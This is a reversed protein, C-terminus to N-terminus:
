KIPVPKLLVRRDKVVVEFRVDSCEHKKQFAAANKKVQAVFRDYTVAEGNPDVKKRAAVYEDFIRRYFQEIPEEPHATEKRFAAQAIGKVNIAPHSGTVEVDAFQLLAAWESDDEPLDDDPLPKGQLFCSMVNLAHAMETTFHNKSSVDWTYDRNGAIVQQLGQDIKVLPNLFNRVLLLILILGVALIIIGLIPLGVTVRQIPVLSDTLNAAVLFGARQNGAREPPFAGRAVLYRGEKTKAVFIQNLTNPDINFESFSLAEGGVFPRYSARLLARQEDPRLNSGAITDDITFALSINGLVSQKDRAVDDNVPFGILAIGLPESTDPRQESIIPAAAVITLTPTEGDGSGEQWAVADHATGHHIANHVVAYSLLNPVNIGWWDETDGIARAVVTGDPDAVILLTPTIPFTAEVERTGPSRGRNREIANHIGRYWEQLAQRVQNHRWERCEEPDSEERCSVPMASHIVPQAAIAEALQRVALVDMRNLAPVAAVTAAVEDGIEEEFAESIPRLFMLHVLVVFLLVVGLFISVLKVRFLM